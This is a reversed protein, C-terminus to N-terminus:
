DKNRLNIDHDHIKHDHSNKVFLPVDTAENDIVKTYTPRSMRRFILTLIIPVVVLLSLVIISYMWPISFYYNTDYVNARQNEGYEISLYAKNKGFRDTYPIPSQFDVKEGPAIIKTDNNLTVSDVEVGSSDYIIIEGSPTIPVDGVNELTYSFNHEKNNLVFSKTKFTTLRLLETQKEVISVRVLVGDSKGELTMKEADDFNKGSGFGIFAHYEGPVANPNIRLTLPLVVESGPTIDQRGRSIEIWSTVSKTRDSMSSPVFSRIENNGDIEIEHVSAYVRVPHSDFNKITIDKVLIDRAETEYDVIMPTVSINAGFTVSPLLLLALTLFKIKSQTTINKYM